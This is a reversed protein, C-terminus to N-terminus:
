TPMPVFGAGTDKIPDSESMRLTQIVCPSAALLAYLSGMDEAVEDWGPVCTAWPCGYHRSLVPHLLRSPTFRVRTTGDQFM